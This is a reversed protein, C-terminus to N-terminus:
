GSGKNNNNNNNINAGASEVIETEVMELGSLSPYRKSFNSEWEEANVAVPNDEYSTVQQAPRNSPIVPEFPRSPSPQAPETRGGTRLAQPKPPAAPRPTLRENPPILGSTPAPQRTKNILLDPPTASRTDTQTNAIPPLTKRQLQQPNFPPNMSMQSNGVQVPSPSATFRGYGEATKTPSSKGNEDLLAQVKNQISAARSNDRGRLRDRDINGKEALRQKYAAAADAVRREEQSLRRRELERRVEPPIEETEEVVQGDDSREDTAESGAIPTLERNGRDPSPSPRRQGPDGTNTEFRRFADGFRGALLSKTGSLSMSPMSARKIHKSGSSNRKEKRKLPDEEEMAKLFEVNSSIKAPETGDDSSGTANSVLREAEYSSAPHEASANGSPSERRQFFKNSSEVYASAPRAKSNASKSRNVTSTLDTFSPRQGELSPRSSSSPKSVTLTATQSKSRHDLLGPRKAGLPDFGLTPGASRISESVGPQSSSRQEHSPPFRFTPRSLHSAHNSDSSSQSPSTMTGTSVMIPRQPEPQQLAPALPGKLLLQKNTGNDISAAEVLHPVPNSHAALAKTSITPQAFADDALAETVRQSINKPQSTSPRTTQEFAFNSGSDHLLSFQELPPFRSSAEDLLATDPPSIPASDMAAFPDSSTSRNPSPSPRPATHDLAGKTPRGRRMPVIDPISVKSETPPSKYAGVM